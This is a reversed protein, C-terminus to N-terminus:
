FWSDDFDGMTGGGLDDDMGWDGSGNFLEDFNSEIHASEPQQEQQLQHAGEDLLTPIADTTNQGPPAETAPAPIDMDLISFDGRDSVYNDLGPLLTDIDEATTPGLTLTQDNNTTALTDFVAENLLDQPMEGNSPFALDFDLSTPDSPNELDNFMSEFPAAEQEQNAQVEDTANITSQENIGNSPEQPKPTPEKAVESTPQLDIALGVTPGVPLPESTVPKDPAPGTDVVGDMATQNVQSQQIDAKRKGEAAVEDGTREAASETKQVDADHTVSEAVKEDNSTPSKKAGLRPSQHKQVGAPKTLAGAAKEREARKARM